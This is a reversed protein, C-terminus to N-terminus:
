QATPRAPRSLVFYVRPWRVVVQLRRRPRRARGATRAIESKHIQMLVAPTHSPFV